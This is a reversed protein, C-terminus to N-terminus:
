SGGWAETNNGPLVTTDFILRYLTNGEIDHRDDLQTRMIEARVEDRFNSMARFLESTTPGVASNASGSNEAATATNEPSTGAGPESPAVAARVSLNDAGRLTAEVTTFDTDKKLGGETVQLQRELWATERLRDNVLRERTYVEPSEVIIVGYTALTPIRRWIELGLVLLSFVILVLALASISIRMLRWSVFHRVLAQTLGVVKIATERSWRAKDRAGQTKSETM